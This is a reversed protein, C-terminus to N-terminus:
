EEDSVQIIDAIINMLEKDSLTKLEEEHERDRVVGLDKIYKLLGFQNLKEIDNVTPKKIEQEKAIADIYRGFATQESTLIGTYDEYQIQSRRNKLYVEREVKNMSFLKAYTPKYEAVKKKRQYPVAFESTTLELKEAKEIVNKESEQKARIIELAIELVANKYKPYRGRFVQSVAGQSLNLKEAIKVISGMPLHKRVERM